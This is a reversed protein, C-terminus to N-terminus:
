TPGRATAAAPEVASRVWVAYPPAASVTTMIVEPVEYPHGAVIGAVCAAAREATTKCTCRFEEATELGGQWRYVSTVPGDVQVCAALGERVLREACAAAAARQPFTTRIEVVEAGPPGSYPAHSM